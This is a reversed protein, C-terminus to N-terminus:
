RATVDAMRWQGDAARELEVIVDQSTTAYGAGGGRLGTGTARVTGELRARDDDGEAAQERGSGPLVSIGVVEMSLDAFAADEALAAVTARDERLDPAGEIYVSALLDADRSRLAEGRVRVLEPLAEAAEIRSGEQGEGSPGEPVPGDQAAQDQAPEVQAPEPRPGSFALWSCLLGAGLVLAAAGTLVARPRGGPVQPPVGPRTGPRKSPAVRRDGPRVRPHEQGSHERGDEDQAARREAIRQALGELRRHGAAAVEAGAGHVEVRAGGMEAAAADGERDEHDQEGDPVGNPVEDPPVEDPLVELAAHLIRALEGATVEAGGPSGASDLAADLVADLVASAAAPLTPNTASLPPRARGPVPRRGTLVTAAAACLLVVDARRLRPRQQPQPIAPDAAPGLLLAWGDDTRLVEQYSLRRLMIGVRHMEELARALDAVMLLTEAQDAAGGEHLHRAFSMDPLPEFLLGTGGAVVARPPLLVPSSVEALREVTEEWVELDGQAGSLPLMVFREGTLAQRVSRGRGEGWAGDDVLEPEPDEHPPDPHAADRPPDPNQM